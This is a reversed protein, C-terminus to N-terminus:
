FMLLAVLAVLVAAGAGSSRRGISRSASANSPSGGSGSGKSGKAKALFADFNNAVSDSVPANVAFVQLLVM